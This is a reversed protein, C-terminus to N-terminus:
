ENTVYVRTYLPVYSVLWDIDPKRVRVCGHSLKMGVRSDYDSGDYSLLTSHIAYGGHFRMIPGVYFNPYTWRSEKSFYEFQGTITPSSSAGITCTISNCLKWNGKSGIFVNVKYNKKSIWILYDTLSSVGSSNVFDEEANTKDATEEAVPSEEAVSSEEPKQVVPKPVYAVININFGDDQVEVPIGFSSLVFGIPAWFRGDMYKLGYEIYVTGGNLVEENSDMSMILSIDNHRVAIFRAKYNHEQEYWPVNVANLLSDLPAYPIGRYLKTDMDVINNDVYMNMSTAYPVGTMYFIDNVLETGNENQYGYTSLVYSGGEAILSDYYQMLAYGYNMRIVFEKGATYMDVPFTVVSKENTVVETTQSGLYQGDTSYLDFSADGIIQNAVWQNDIVVSVNNSYVEASASVAAFMAAASILLVLLKKM